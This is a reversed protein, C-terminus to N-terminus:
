FLHSNCPSFNFGLIVYVALMEYIGFARMM